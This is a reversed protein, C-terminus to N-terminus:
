LRRRTAWLLVAAFLAEWLMAGEVALREWIGLWPTAENDSVNGIDMNMLTGFVVMVLITALSYLKFRWGFAFAGVGITVFFLM